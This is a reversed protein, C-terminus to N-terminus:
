PLRHLIVEIFVQARFDRRDKPLATHVRYARVLGSSELDRIPLLQVIRGGRASAENRSIPIIEDRQREPEEVVMSRVGAHEDNRVGHGAVAKLDHGPGNGLVRGEMRLAQGGVADVEEFGSAVSWLGCFRPGMDLQSALCWCRKLGSGM